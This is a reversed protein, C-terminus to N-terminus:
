LKSALTTWSAIWGTGRCSKCKETGVLDRNKQARSCVLCELAKSDMLVLGNGHCFRCLQWGRGDCDKCYDGCTSVDVTVDCNEENKWLQWQLELRLRNKTAADFVEKEDNEVDEEELTEHLSASADSQQGSTAAEDEEFQPMLDWDIDCLDYCEDEGSETSQVTNENNSNQNENDDNPGDPGGNELSSWTSLLRQGRRSSFLAPSLSKM